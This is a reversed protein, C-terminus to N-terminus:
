HNVLVQYQVVHFASILKSDASAGNIQIGEILKIYTYICVYIYSTHMCKDDINCHVKNRNFLRELKKAFLSFISMQM